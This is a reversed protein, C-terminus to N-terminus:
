GTSRARSATDGKNRKENSAVTRMKEATKESIREVVFDFHVSVNEGKGVGKALVTDYSKEGLETRVVARGGEASVVVGPYTRCAAPDFDRMLEYREDVVQSHRFLFYERVVDVDVEEKGMQRAILNCMADAIPFLKESGDDPAVGEAVMATLGDVKERTMKGRSVITGSCPIAYKMFILRAEPNM